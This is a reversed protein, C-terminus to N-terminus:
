HYPNFDGLRDHSKTSRKWAGHLIKFNHISFYNMLKELYKEGDQEVSQITVKVEFAYRIPKTEISIKM